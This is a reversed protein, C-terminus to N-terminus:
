GKKLDQGTRAGVAPLQTSHPGLTADLWVTGVRRGGLFVDEHVPTGTTPLGLPDCRPPWVVWEGAGM